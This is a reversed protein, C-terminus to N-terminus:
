VLAKAKDIQTTNYIAYKILIESWTIKGLRLFWKISLHFCSIKSIHLNYIFFM